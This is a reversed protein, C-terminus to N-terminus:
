IITWPAYGTLMMVLGVIPLLPVLIWLVILFLSVIVSFTITFAGAILVMTRVIAGIIRSILNDFFARVQIGIPGDIKGASIQRFPAFLTKLLLGISFLDMLGDLRVWIRRVTRVIGGSYWWSLLGVIQM